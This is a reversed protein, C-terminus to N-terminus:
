NFSIHSPFNLEFNTKFQNGFQNFYHGKGGYRQVLLTKRLTLTQSISSLSFDTASNAPSNVLERRENSLPISRPTLFRFKNLLFLFFLVRGSFSEYRSCFNTDHAPEYRSTHSLHFERGVTENQVHAM